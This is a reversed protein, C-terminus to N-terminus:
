PHREKRRLALLADILEPQERLAELDKRAFPLSVFDEIQDLLEPAGHLRNRAEHAAMLGALASCTAAMLSNAAQDEPDVGEPPRWQAVYCRLV